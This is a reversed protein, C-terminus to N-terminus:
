GGTSNAIQIINQIDQYQFQQFYFIDVGIRQQIAFSTLEEYLNTKTYLTKEKDTNIFKNVERPMIKKYGTNTAQSTYLLVRGCNDAISYVSNLLAAGM